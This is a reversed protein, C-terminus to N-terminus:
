FWSEFKTIWKALYPRVLDGANGFEGGVYLNGEGDFALESAGGDVGSGLASWTSGNWKAVRTVSVTAPPSESSTYALTFAGGAFLNGSSDVAFSRVSGNLGPNAQPGLGSWSSGNWKAVYNAPLAPESTIETFNGGAYLNGSGDFM